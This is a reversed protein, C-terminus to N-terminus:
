LKRRCCPCIKVIEEDEKKTLEKAIDIPEGLREEIPRTNDGLWDVKWCFLKPPLNKSCVIKYFYDIGFSGELEFSFEENSLLEYLVDGISMNSKLSNCFDYLVEGVGNAIYSDYNSYLRFRKNHEGELDIIARTSM